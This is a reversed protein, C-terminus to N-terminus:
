IHWVYIDQTRFIGQIDCPETYALTVCPKLYAVIRSSM